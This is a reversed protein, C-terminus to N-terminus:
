RPVQFVHAGEGFGIRLLKNLLNNCLDRPPMVDTQEILHFVGVFSKPVSPCRKFVAPAAVDEDILDLASKVVPLSLIPANIPDDSRVRRVALTVELDVSSPRLAIEPAPDGPHRRSLRIREDITRPPVRDFVHPDFLGGRRVRYDSPSPFKKEGGDDYLCLRGGKDITLM